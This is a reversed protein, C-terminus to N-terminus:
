IEQIITDKKIYEYQIVHLLDIFATPITVGFIVFVCLSDFFATPVAVWFSYFYLISYSDNGSFQLVAFIIYFSTMRGPYPLM